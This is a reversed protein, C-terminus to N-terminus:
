QDPKIGRELLWALIKTQIQDRVERFKARQQKSTGEFAAPDEFSWHLRTGLGPLIPCKKDAQDCVTIAIEFHVRGLYQNLKKSTQKELSIGLETLVEKTLPHIGKAELGASFVHFHDGAYKRLLAEAM